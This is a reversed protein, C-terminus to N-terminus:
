VTATLSGAAARDVLWILQGNRPEISQIPRERPDESATFVDHLAQTKSPGETAIVICRAANIAAPTLTLRYMGVKKVYPARVLQADDTHPDTGPFLSATHADPGMGLMVLDFEPPDGLTRRLVDAYAQAAQRPQEEGHMRFVNEEPVPVRSLLADSAMKYNSQEDDPPVCREDGFFVAVNRWDVQSKRPEQALLAYAAKPTNGGALAVAFRGRNTVADRARQVFLDALAGAVQEANDFVRLQGRGRV